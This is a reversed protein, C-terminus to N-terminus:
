FTEATDQTAIWITRENGFYVGSKERIDQCVKLAEVQKPVDGLYYRDIISILAANGGELDYPM